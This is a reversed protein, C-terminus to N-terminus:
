CRSSTCRAAVPPSMTANRWRWCPIVTVNRPAGPVSTKVPTARARVRCDFHGEEDHPSGSSGRAEDPKQHWGLLWRWLHGCLSAGITRHKDGAGTPMVRHMQVAPVDAKCSFASPHHDALFPRPAPSARYRHKWRPEVRKRRLRCGLLFGGRRTDTTTATEYENDNNALRVDYRHSWGRQKRRRWSKTHSWSRILFLPVRSAHSGAALRESGISRASTVSTNKPLTPTKTEQLCNPLTRAFLYSYQYPANFGEATSIIRPM